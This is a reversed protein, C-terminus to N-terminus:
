ENRYPKLCVDLDLMAQYEELHIGGKKFDLSDPYESADQAKNRADTLWQNSWQSIISLELSTFDKIIGVLISHFGNRSLPEHINRIATTDFSRLALTLQDAKELLLRQRSKDSHRHIVSLANEFASSGRSDKSFQTIFAELTALSDHTRDSNRSRQLLHECFRNLKETEIPLSISTDNM